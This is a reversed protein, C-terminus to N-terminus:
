CRLRQKDDDELTDFSVSNIQPQSGWSLAQYLKVM